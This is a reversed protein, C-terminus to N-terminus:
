RPRRERWSRRDAHLQSIERGGYGVPRAPPAEAPIHAAPAPPRGALVLMGWSAADIMDDRVAKPGFAVAENIFPVIWNGEAEPAPWRRVLHLRGQEAAASMEKARLVKDGSPRDSVVIRGMARLREEHYAIARKGAAGPDQQLIIPVRYGDLEACQDILRDVGAATVQERVMDLVYWHDGKRAVLAGATYDPSGKGKEPETGAEDWSRGILDYYGVDYSPPEDVVDLWDRRFMNGDSRVRWGITPDNPDGLLRMRDVYPLSRLSALYEPNRSLLAANDYVTAPIFTLSKAPQGDPDRWDADVWVLEDGHRTIYRLAGAAFPYEPHDIDVWPALLQKLWSDPDPNVTARVFPRVGCASRNRSMLYWFVRDSFEELQDFYLGAIQAGKWREVEHDHQVHGFRVRAGSPFEWEMRYRRGIAGLAPYLKLSEDWMGGENAIDPYTRRFITAGFGPVDIYRLPDCLMSFTKGGGAAGGYIAIDAPTTLFDLQRPQPQILLADDPVGAPRAWVGTSTTRDRAPM